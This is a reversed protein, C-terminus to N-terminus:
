IYIAFSCIFIAKLFLLNSVCLTISYGSSHVFDKFLVPWVLTSVLIQLAVPVRPRSCLLLRPECFSSQQSWVAQVWLRREQSKPFTQIGEIVIILYWYCSTRNVEDLELRHDPSIIAFWKTFM